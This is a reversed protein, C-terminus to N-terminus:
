NRHRSSETRGGGEGGGYVIGLPSFPHSARSTAFLQLGDVYGPQFDFIRGRYLIVRTDVLPLKRKEGDIIEIDNHRIEEM